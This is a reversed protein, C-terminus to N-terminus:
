LRDVAKAVLPVVLAYPDDISLPLSFQTTLLEDGLVVYVSGDPITATKIADDGIGPVHGLPPDYAGAWFDFQARGGTQMVTLEIYDTGPFPQTDLTWTCQPDHGPQTQPKTELVQLGTTTEIEDVTLLSCADVVAAPSPPPPPTFGPCGAALCPLKALIIEALYRVVSLTDNRGFALYSADFLVDGQLVMLEDDGSRGAKDGLGVVAEDLVEGQGIFPEFSTEYLSRGGTARVSVSLSEGGNLEIDCISPFVDPRLASLQRNVVSQGTAAEIEGDSLLTCADIAAAVPGSGNPATPLNSPSQTTPRSTQNPAPSSPTSTSPTGGGCGAVALLATMVVGAVNLPVTLRM